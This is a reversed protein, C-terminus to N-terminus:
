LAPKLLATATLDVTAAAKHLCEQWEADIDSDATIGGGVGLVATGDPAIEVTRIAVNLELGAVP